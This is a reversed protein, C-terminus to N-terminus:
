YPFSKPPSIEAPCEFARKRKKYHKASKEQDVESM